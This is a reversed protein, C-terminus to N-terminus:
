FCHSLSIVPVYDVRPNKYGISRSTDSAKYNKSLQNVSGGMKLMMSRVTLTDIGEYITEFADM